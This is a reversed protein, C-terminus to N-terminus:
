AIPNSTFYIDPLGDNDFDALAVGGGDHAYLYSNINFSDSEIVTNIFELNTENVSIETFLKTPGKCSLLCFGFVWLCIRIDLFSKVQDM